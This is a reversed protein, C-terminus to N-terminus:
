NKQTIVAVRIRKALDRVFTARYDPLYKKVFARIARAQGSGIELVIIGDTKLYNPSLRLLHEILALGKEPAVLASYPEYQLEPYQKVASRYEDSSLYPLNAIIVDYRTAKKPFLNAYKCQIVDAMGHRSANKRAISLASRSIDVATVSVPTECALTVAIAGSGTGIDLISLPSTRRALLKVTTEILVETDPRPILVSPRVLFERGYFEKSEIIYAIPERKSRRNLISFFKQKQRSSFAAEPHALLWARDKKLVFAILVESDLLYSGIKAM